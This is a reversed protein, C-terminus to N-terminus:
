LFTQAGIEASVLEAKASIKASDTYKEVDMDHMPQMSWALPRQSKSGTPCDLRVRLTVMQFAEKKEPQVSVSLLVLYYNFKEKERNLFDMLQPDNGITKKNLQLPLPMGVLVRKELSPVKKPDGKRTPMDPAFPVEVLNPVPLKLEAM